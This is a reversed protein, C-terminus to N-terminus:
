SCMGAAAITEAFFAKRSVSPTARAPDRSGAAFIMVPSMRFRPPSGLAPMIPSLMRVFADCAPQALAMM